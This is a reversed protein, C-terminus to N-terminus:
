RSGRRNAMPQVGWTRTRMGEWDYAKGPGEYVGPGKLLVFALDCHMGSLNGRSRTDTSTHSHHSLRTAHSLPVAAPSPM